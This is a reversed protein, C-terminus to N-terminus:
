ILDYMRHTYWMLNRAIDMSWIGAMYSAHLHSQFIKALGSLAPLRDTTRTLTRTTYEEILERWKAFSFPAEAQYGLRGSSGIPRQEESANTPKFILSFRPVSVVGHSSIYQEDCEFQLKSEGFLLYLPSLYREQVASTLM